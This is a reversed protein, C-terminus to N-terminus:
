ICESIFYTAATLQELVPGLYVKERTTCSPARARTVNFMRYALCRRALACGSAPQLQELHVKFCNAAAGLASTAAVQKLTCGFCCRDAEPHVRLLQNVINILRQESSREESRSLAISRAVLIPQADSILRLM